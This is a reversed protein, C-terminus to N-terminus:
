PMPVVTKSRLTMSALGFTALNFRFPISADMRVCTVPSGSACAYGSSVALAYGTSSSFGATSMATAFNAQAQAVTMTTVMAQRAVQNTAWQLTSWSNMMRMIEVSGILLNVLIAGILAFEVAAAGRRDRVLRLLFRRMM